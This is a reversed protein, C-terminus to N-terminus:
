SVNGSYDTKGSCDTGHRRCFLVESPGYPDWDYCRNGIQCGSCGM